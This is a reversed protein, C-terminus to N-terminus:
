SMILRCRLLVTIYRYHCPINISYIPLFMSLLYYLWLMSTLWKLETPMKLSYLRPTWAAAVYEALSRQTAIYVTRLDQKQWGWTTGGVVRLLNTPLFM